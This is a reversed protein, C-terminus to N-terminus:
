AQRRIAPLPVHLRRQALAKTEEGRRDYIGTTDVSAHGMLRRVTEIDVGGLLLETAFTRRLDHPTVREIKAQKARRLVALRLAEAYVRRRTIRGNRVDCLLPGDWDGRVWQWRRLWEVADGLYVTRFREGKGTVSVMGNDLDVDKLDLSATEERRLGGAYCLAIFAADRAGAPTQDQFCVAFLATVEDQTLARGRPKRDGTMKRVDAARTYSDRDMLRLRWCERLVCRLACLMRNVTNPAYRGMLYARVKTTEEYGVRPWAFMEPRKIPRGTIVSAAVTLARRQSGRGSERLSALYSLAPNAKRDKM